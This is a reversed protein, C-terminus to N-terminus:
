VKSAELAPRNEESPRTNEPSRRGVEAGAFAPVLLFKLTEKALPIYEKRSLGLLSSLFAEGSVFNNIAMTMGLIQMRVQASVGGDPNHLGMSRAIDSIFNPVSDMWKLEHRIQHFYRSSTLKAIEPHQFYYDLTMDISIDLRESLPRGHIIKEIKRLHERINETIDRIVAEYLDDKEGWHYYLTSIDIGVEKAIIRTTAGHYGYQGFVRRAAALIKAKMSDPDQRAKELPTTTASGGDCREMM